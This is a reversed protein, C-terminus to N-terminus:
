KFVYAPLSKDTKQEVLQLKRRNRRYSTELNMLVFEDILSSQLQIHIQLSSVIIGYSYPNSFINERHRINTFYTDPKIMLCYIYLSSSHSFPFTMDLMEGEINIKTMIGGTVHSSVCASMMLICADSWVGGGLRWGM